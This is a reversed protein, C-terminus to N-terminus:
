IIDPSPMYFHSGTYRSLRYKMCKKCLKRMEKMLKRKNIQKSMNAVNHISCDLDFCFLERNKKM